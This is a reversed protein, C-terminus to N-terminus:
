WSRGSREPQLSCVVPRKRRGRREMNTRSPPVDLAGVVPLAQQLGLKVFAESSLKKAVALEGFHSVIGEIKVLLIKM